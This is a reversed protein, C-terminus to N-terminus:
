TRWIEEAWNKESRRGTKEKEEQKKKEAEQKKKKDDEKKEEEIDDVRVSMSQCSGKENKVDVKYNGKDGAEPREIELAVSYEGKKVEKVMIIHRSDERIVTSDRTWNVKPPAGSEVRVEIIITRKTKNKVVKPAERIVPALEINLKLNSNCEGFNNRVNCKYLGADTLIPNKLELKIHYAGTSEEKTVMQIRGGQNIPDGDCTWNITPKTVSKIKCEMKILKGDNEAIIKPPSIFSPAEGAEEEDDGEINLTLNANIEGKSNKITCKYVGGDSAAPSNIEMFVLHEDKETKIVQKIRSSERITQGGKTWIVTIKETSKVKCEMVILDESKPIIKPRQIFKPAGESENEENGQFNLAINANSEGLGNSANCRYTGGDENVPNKIELQLLYADKGESKESIVHRPSNQIKKTGHFWQIEPFPKAELYCQLLLSGKVQLIQPKRPFRPPSGQPVNPKGQDFNLNITAEDEGHANSCQLKYVGSENEAINSIELSAVHNHKDSTLNYKHRSDEKVLNSKHFWKITPKPNAVLRCEFIIKGNDGQRIVPKETFTPKAEGAPINSDDSDFNLSISANSEGLPNSSIVKYRGADEVEVDTIQLTAVYSNGSENILTAKYRGKPEILNNNHYWSVNPKPDAQIKCEFILIRGDEEQAITPKKSFIPSCGDIQKKDM